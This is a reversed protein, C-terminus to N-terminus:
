WQSVHLNRLCDSGAGTPKQCRLCDEAKQYCLWLRGGAQRRGCALVTLSGSPSGVTVGQRRFHQGVSGRFVRVGWAKVAIRPAVLLEQNRFIFEHGRGGPVAGARRAAAGSDALIRLKVVQLPGMSRGSGAM